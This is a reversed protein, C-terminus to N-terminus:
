GRPVQRPRFLWGAGKFLSFASFAVLITMLLRWPQAAHDALTPGSIREVFVHQRTAQLRAAEAQDLAATYNRNAFDRQLSLMQYEALTPTMSGDPGALQRQQVSIQEELSAIQSRLVGIQSSAPANKILDSLQVKLAVSQAGLESITKIVVESLAVPDISKERQRFRTLKAQADALEIHSAAVRDSAAQIAEKRARADIGNVLAEAAGLLSGGIAKADEARFARTTLKIVGSMADYDVDIMGSVYQELHYQSDARFPGPYAMLFDAVPRAFLKRLEISRDLVSVAGPSKMFSVVLQTEADGNMAGASAAAGAQMSVASGLRGGVAGSSRVIFETQSVYRDAAILGFYLAACLSPLAVLLGKGVLGDFSWRPRRRPSERNPVDVDQVAARLPLLEVFGSTLPPLRPAVAPGPPKDDPVAVHAPVDLQKLRRLM